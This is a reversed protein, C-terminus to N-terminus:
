RIRRKIQKRLEEAKEGAGRLGELMARLQGQPPKGHLQRNCYDMYAAREDPPYTAAELDSPWERGVLIERARFLKTAHKLVGPLREWGLRSLTKL